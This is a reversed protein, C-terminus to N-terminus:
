RVLERARLALWLEIRDQAQNLDRGTLEEIKRIRYRLTHRHCFLERAAREWQGNHEIFVELSRLLEAGYDTGDELPDLLNDSYTRLAEDDHLALLLTFAGLDRHSAVEPASGNSLATAELACRAEHFARRLSDIPVSRSAAARVARGESGALARRGARALGIPDRGSLDVIACLLPRGAADNVAVLAQSGAERLAGALVDPDDAAPELDFLLVALPDSIGFPSMRTRLEAAGLRGGLAEALLDGALRRETERVSRERMLELAIVMAAQRALLRELDGVRGSRRAVILWHGRAGRGAVPVPVAVARGELDGEEAIFPAQRDADVRAAVEGRIAAAARKSIGREQPHRVVERGREDLLLAAGGVAGAITRMIEGLGREALVLGELQSHVEIGRQLVSYGDNVLRTFARETIAIFPMEYPVEFLPLGAARCAEVLAEPVEAHEFGTGFGLGAADRDALARVLRRQAAATGINLGTTLLLESGSLFQTPDELESIHVWRIRREAADAGVLPEIGLEDTLERVTLM